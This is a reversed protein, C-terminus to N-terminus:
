RRPTGRANTEADHLVDENWVGVEIGALPRGASDTVTIMVTAGGEGASLPGALATLTLLCALVSKMFVEGLPFM